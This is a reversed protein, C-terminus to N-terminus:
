HQRNTIEDVVMLLQCSINAKIKNLYNQRRDWLLNELGVEDSDSTLLNVLAEDDIQYVSPNRSLLKFPLKRM